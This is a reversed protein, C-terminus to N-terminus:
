RAFDIRGDVEAVRANEAPSLSALNRLPRPSNQHGPIVEGRARTLTSGYTALFVADCERLERLERDRVQSDV